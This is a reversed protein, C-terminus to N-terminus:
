GLVRSRWQGISDSCELNSKTQRARERESERSSELERARSSERERSSERLSDSCSRFGQEFLGEFDCLSHALSSGQLMCTLNLLHLHTALTARFNLRETEAAWRQSIPDKTFSRFAQLGRNCPFPVQPPSCTYDDLYLFSM